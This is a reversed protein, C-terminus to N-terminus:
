TANRNALGKFTTSPTTNPEKKKRKKKTITLVYTHKSM